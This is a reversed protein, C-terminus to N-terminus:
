TSVRAYGYITMESSWNRLYTQLSLVRQFVKDLM